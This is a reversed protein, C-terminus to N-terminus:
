RRFVGGYEDVIILRHKEGTFLSVAIWVPIWLGLTLVSIVLHLLHSTPKGKALQATNQTQSVVHWGYQASDTVARALIASQEDATLKQVASTASISM